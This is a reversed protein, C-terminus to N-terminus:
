AKLGLKGYLWNMMLVVLFAPILSAVKLDDIVLVKLALAILLAGGVASIQSIISKTFISKVKGAIMTIGGQILLMPLISFLVGIGGYTSTLVIAMIADFISKVILLERKNQIGEEIAGVITIPSACFLVFAAILGTSFREQGMTFNLEFWGKWSEFIEKLGAWEGLIGGLILSIIFILMMEDKIKLSMQIGLILIGIGLAQETILSVDHRIDPMFQYLLLGIFSGIVVAAMNIFTGIPLKSM